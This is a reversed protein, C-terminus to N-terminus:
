PKRGRVRKPKPILARGHQPCKYEEGVEMLFQEYHCGPEPCVQLPGPRKPRPGGPPPQYGLASPPQYGLDRFLGKEEYADLKTKLRKQAPEVKRIAELATGVAAQRTIPGRAKALIDQLEQRLRKAQKNKGLEAPDAALDQILNYQVAVIPDDKKAM